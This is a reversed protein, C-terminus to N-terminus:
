ISLPPGRPRAIEIFSHIKSIPQFVGSICRVVLPDDVQQQFWCLPLIHIRNLDLAHSHGIQRPGGTHLWAPFHGIRLNKTSRTLQFAGLSGLGYMLLLASSPAPPLQEIRENRHDKSSAPFSDVSLAVHRHVYLSSFSDIDPLALSAQRSASAPEPRALSSQDIGSWAAPTRDAWAATAVVLTLLCCGTAHFLRM